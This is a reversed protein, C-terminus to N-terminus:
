GREISTEHTRHWMTLGIWAAGVAFLAGGADIAAWPTPGIPQPPLGELLAGAALCLAGARPLVRASVTAAGTVFWGAAFAVGAVLLIPAPPAFFPGSAEVLAPAREALVPWVFATLLGTGIYLATGLLAVVFAAAGFWGGEEGQRAYLGVLGPLLFLGSYFHAAHALGWEASSVAAAGTLHGAAVFLFIANLVGGVALSAGSWRVLTPTTM